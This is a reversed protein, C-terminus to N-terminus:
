HSKILQWFTLRRDSKLVGKPYIKAALLSFLAISSVMATIGFAIELPSIVDHLMRVMLSIPATFPVYTTILATLSEPNEFVALIEVALGALLIIMIPITSSSLEEPRGAVAGSIAYLAAFIFYGLIFCLLFYVTEKFTFIELMTEAISDPYIQFLGSKATLTIAGFFFFLQTLGALGIGIIKGFMMPVPSIKAIMVEMVRSSKEAAIATAVSYGYTTIAIYMIGMLIFPILEFNEDTQRLPKLVPEIQMTLQEAGRGGIQYEGIVQQQYILQAFRLVGQILLPDEKKLYCDLQIPVNGDEKKLVFLGAIENELIKEKYEEIKSAEGILIHAPRQEEDVQIQSETSVFVYEKDQAEGRIKEALSPFSFIFIGLLILIITMSIYSKNRVSDLYTQQLVIWFNRM